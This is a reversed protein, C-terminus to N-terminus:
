KIVFVAGDLLQSKGYVDTVTALWLYKGDMVREGKFTGDWKFNPDNTKFILEGWRNFIMLDIEVIHHSPFFFFDNTGDGNPSFANPPFVTIPAKIEVKKTISDLCGKHWASLTVRYVGFTDYTFATDNNKSYGYHAFHWLISDTNGSINHFSVTDEKEYIPNAVSSIIFDPIPKGNIDVQINATDSCGNESQAKLMVFFTGEHVFRHFLVQGEHLGTGDDFDWIFKAKSDTSKAKFLLEAGSGCVVTDNPSFTEIRILKIAKVLTTDCGSQTNKIYLMLQSKDKSFNVHVSSLSDAGKISGNSISWRYITNKNTKTIFTQTSVNSCFVSDGIIQPIDIEKIQVYLASSSRCGTIKDIVELHISDSAKKWHVKIKDPSQTKYKETLKWNYLYNKQFPSSYTAPHHACLLKPGKIISLPTKQKAISFELLSDCTTITNTLRVSINGNNTSDWKIIFSSDNQSMLEGGEVTCHWVIHNAHTIFYQETAGKCVSDPGEILAKGVSLGNITHTDIATCGFENVGMITLNATNSSLFGILQDHDIKQIGLGDYGWYYTLNNDNSYARYKMTDHSSLCTKRLGKIEVGPTKKLTINKFAEAICGAASIIEVALKHNNLNLPWAVTISDTGIGSTITGNSVTWTYATGKSATYNATSLECLTDPGYIVSDPRANLIINKSATSQCGNANTIQLSIQHNNGNVPWAVTISDTGSGSTITGNNVTWAFASGKSATYSATSLECLTDPGYVVSDPRANLIITKHATSQCGNANTIQVSIEHNNSNKPWAVTISDTGAGNTITGKSVTWTYATGKSASYTGTSLECLTDPGYIMSDPRANLIITKHATSQCGDANTILVDLQHNNSNVPWAVTISDTGSGSTMTGNSVTWNYTTGKSASYTATSLECLTDPGYIVSDPRANLIINKSATSQCGNANTIAVDLRHNNSNQPWAVTISDTGSGSTITGNNVTWAFASGKSATYNATSLECLTDPGYIVSDPRANLIITKHAKSQCGNANTIQVSIQHNNSNVPWSVTISDTGAGNNLTGNSVTWNYATGKSATYTGTSLECLTDPGYIVSDPRTNLIINKSAKSQCGNANTIQVTIQHNNSNVPWAVTISDTGSSSTITGNNISWTYAIGKSATYMASSLECLTDPGYIVSDPRANLIITKHATSQCGNANTILVDLQHNINKQPWAITISDTGAVNNLTGNSVTWNYVSGKSATYTASSLECLTDPGYIVSDPRANLIITKSATSQCGNANTIVVGLKQNNSNVPWDVTISDTGSGSTITGNNVTWIYAASKSAMYNATSLECLTDPGYIVSDPRANLIINKSAKSQCGNANTIQVSIKHNNSNQPWAVTISDTGAGNTITGNSVTWTYTTGKSASYTATSLECLTDPGYIVSDPRANLIINKSATSQCGNANTIQVSIQHSNTNVPWAVIISDTGSGTKIAGNNISWTYTTGKSASYTATSLECLTDPGYIVSDPRTNLIITKQAASQCGNANTIQGSIQHNNSNQPWAVTISDTGSGSTITGNSLTWNYSTGKSATYTATSLECLTDPGYIVSDPRANLIITKHAKSQCGNANTIQVSIQHNNSNVPWDVTISDMGSGSSITGNSVSWSYSTGKSATYTATSLECLTDPGYIVSDPRANLIITKHATSQCGNANTIQVSIQHSNTNVPWAVIISDTGSGSTITGNNVTWTYATGKSATYTATSLECLTDPGYIVSDPRANLIINKSAKSQCGNANTIQVSIQHNNSNVPWAVVISDPGSGSTLTGNSVTWNYTTGKSASYTATSLECLTDLGYIVSDPRANLIIPKSSKSQCGNANTIVVDLQHNNSNQPWAVTISDTGSGSTLTGNSVSWSYAIGKSATYTATSLECLTDPGYIASDPRANLTITKHATSQCGNANTIKMGILHNNSNVPWAVTISDTGSGSTITGNSVTWNYATGKSASYTATSLECLTDPGYVVSDPRANLIITKHATSKCGYANTIQVSIQHNNSNVPWAVTISDMGSGSTITGNSVSWTYATGKSASYTATSLECLTDPGYIVSDPRANLIITKHAKSQCGNANTIQVSIQHNNSNVPWAVTISDTGSGSTITGNNISWTYATGKSATYTATSLECLTDPGYIMSDPRANLIITKHATSQCGYSNTIKVSVQHNNSNVPWAVTISDTGIGSIITGNNISWSYTSGKSAAYTATSLECLTDPGYIVSDPRANLIITKHATSQCGNANTIQVSIQHNNSNVPWDVTISDTGSGTTLTGNSVTWNYALGKSATYTGTSLECLTDPGYIVSDPRANLIITKHATSQCGYSNTIKVSIQHNNSNVPWAVTISDTGAGNTITGKSVTWSYATGISATYNATSLECLTDQGYIVSDPRANLIINKSAKSQCGNANTIQVSIKHNNSNQPWAVTISDTGSGRIITGNSVTWTYATGKSATYTATSLECLTDPGYIVSDPRANLIITKHATSQCGNANAIFVDLQHNNSDQPWSVTISDTGS